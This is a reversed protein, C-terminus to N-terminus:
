RALELERHFEDELEATASGGTGGRTRNHRESRASGDVSNKGSLPQGTAIVGM